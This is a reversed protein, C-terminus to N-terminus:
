GKSDPLPRAQPFAYLAAKYARRILIDIKDTEAKTLKLYPIPYVIRSVVFAQLLRVRDQETLRSDVADSRIHPDLDKTVTKIDALLEQTWRNIDTICEPSECEDAHKINSERLARLKDWDTLTKQRLTKTLKHKPVMETEIILHDSGLTQDTVKWRVRNTHLSLTLDPTSDRQASNGIRTPTNIGTELTFQHTQIQEWPDRGKPECTTYGWATHPANFDGVILLAHPGVERM